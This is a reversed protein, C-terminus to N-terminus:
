VHDDPRDRLVPPPPRYWTLQLSSLVVSVSSLAMALGAFMPPLQMHTIPFFAGAAIPIMLVNYLMAWVYNLQIRLFTVRALDLSTVVDELDSRNLVFDAAEIAVQM